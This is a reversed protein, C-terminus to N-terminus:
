LIAAIGGPPVQNSVSFVDNASTGISAALLLPMAVVSNRSAASARVDRKPINSDKDSSVIDGISITANHCIDKAGGCKGRNLAVQIAVDLYPCGRM